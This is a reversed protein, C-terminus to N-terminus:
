FDFPDELEVADASGDRLEQARQQLYGIRQAAYSDASEYLITDIVARYEHRFQLLDLTGTAVLMTMAEDSAFVRPVPDALRDVVFGFTDRATSPGFLPLEMYPGPGVGWVALTEGFDTDREPVGFDSTAPDLLGGLGFVTNIGFRAFTAGAEEVDGQLIHNAFRIPEGLNSAFNSIGRRGPAPVAAAYAEATPRVFSRDVAKYYGHIVRNTGEWPDQVEAMGGDPAGSCASLAMVSGALMLAPMRGALGITRTMASSIRAIRRRNWCRTLPKTVITITEAPIRM